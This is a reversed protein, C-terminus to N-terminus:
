SCSNVVNPRKRQDVDTMVVEQHIQSTHKKKQCNSLDTSCFQTKMWSTPQLKLLSLGM